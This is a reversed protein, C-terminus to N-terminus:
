GRVARGVPARELGPTGPGFHCRRNVRYRVSDGDGKRSSSGGMCIMSTRATCNVLRKSRGCRLERSDRVLAGKGKDKHLGVCTQRSQSIGVAILHEHRGDHLSPQPGMASPSSGKWISATQRRSNAERANQLSAPGDQTADTGDLDSAPVNAALRLAYRNGLQQTSPPAFPDFGVGAVKM